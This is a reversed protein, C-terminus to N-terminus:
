ATEAAQDGPLMARVPAAWELAVDEVMPANASELNFRGATPGRRVRKLMVPGDALKVICLRGVVAAADPEPDRSYFLIWGDTIMPAQSDGRVIVAITKAPNLGRPCPVEKLGGGKPYPDVLEVTAGAGVYGVVPVVPDRGGYMLRAPDVDYFRAFREAWGHDLREPKTEYKHVNSRSTGIARAVQELTLGRAERLRTLGSVPRGPDRKRGRRLPTKPREIQGRSDVQGCNDVARFFDRRLKRVFPAQM